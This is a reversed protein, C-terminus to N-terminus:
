LAFNATVGGVSDSGNLYGDANLDTVCTENYTIGTPLFTATTASASDIESTVLWDEFKLQTERMDPFEVISDALSASWATETDPNYICTKVGSAPAAEVTTYTGLTGASYNITDEVTLISSSFTFGSRYAGFDSVDWVGNSNEDVFILYSISTNTNDLSISGTYNGQADTYLLYRGPYAYASDTGWYRLAVKVNPTFGKLSFILEPRDDNIKSDSPATADYFCVGEGLALWLLIVPKWYM